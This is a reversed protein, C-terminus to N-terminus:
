LCTEKSPCTGVPGEMLHRIAGDNVFLAQSHLGCAARGLLSVHSPLSPPNPPEQSQLHRNSPKPNQTVTYPVCLPHLTQTQAAKIETLRRTEAYTLRGSSLKIDAEFLPMRPRILHLTLRRDSFDWSGDCPGWYLGYSHTFSMTRSLCFTATLWAAVACTHASLKRRPQNLIRQRAGLTSGRRGPCPCFKPTSPLVTPHTSLEHELDLDSNLASDQKLDLLPRANYCGEAFNGLKNM